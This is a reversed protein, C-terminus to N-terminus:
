FTYALALPSVAIVNIELFVTIIYTNVPQAYEAKKKKKALRILYFASNRLEKVNRQLTFKFTQRRLALWKSQEEPFTM